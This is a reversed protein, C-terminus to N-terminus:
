GNGFDHRFVSGSGEFGHIVIFGKLPRAIEHRPVTQAKGDTVGESDGAAVVLGLAEQELRSIHRRKIQKLLM